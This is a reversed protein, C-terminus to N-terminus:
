ISRPADGRIMRRAINRILVVKSVTLIAYLLLPSAQLNDWDRLQVQGHAVWALVFSSCQMALYCTCQMILVLIHREQILVFCIGLLGPNDLASFLDFTVYTVHAHSAFILNSRHRSQVCVNIVPFVFSHFVKQFLLKGTAIINLSGLKM